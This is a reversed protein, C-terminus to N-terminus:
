VDVQGTRPDIRRFAAELQEGTLPALQPVPDGTTPPGILGKDKARKIWRSATASPLGLNAEVQKAPPLQLVEALNYYFAVWELSEDTPGQKRLQAVKEDSPAGQMTMVETMVELGTDTTRTSGRSVGNILATRTADWVRLARLTKSTVPVGDSPSSVNLSTARVGYPTMNIGVTVDYSQGDLELDKWIMVSPLAMYLGPAIARPPGKQELRWGM